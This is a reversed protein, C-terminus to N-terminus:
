RSVDDDDRPLLRGPSVESFTAWTRVSSGDTRIEASGECKYRPYRRREAGKKSSDIAPTSTPEPATSKTETATARLSRLYEAGSLEKSDEANAPRQTGYSFQEARSPKFSNSPM